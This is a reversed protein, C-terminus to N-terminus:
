VELEELAKDIAESDMNEFEELEKKSKLALLAKRKELRTEKEKALDELNKKYEFVGKVTDVQLQLSNKQATNSNEFLSDTDLGDLIKKTSKYLNNLSRLSMAHFLDQVTYTTGVRGTFAVNKEVCKAVNQVLNTEM